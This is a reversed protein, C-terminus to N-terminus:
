DAGFFNRFWRCAAGLSILLTAFTEYKGHGYLHDEDRDKGSIGIFGFVIVDTLFDSLSHVGDAIM